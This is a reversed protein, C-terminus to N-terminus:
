PFSSSVSAKKLLVALEHSTFGSYPLKCIALKKPYFDYPFYQTPYRKWELVRLTNPLHKPGKSFHGNRIILTKLKKMKKFAYGDWEIQIEQFIPFDM